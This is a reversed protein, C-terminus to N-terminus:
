KQFHVRGRRKWIRSVSSRSRRIADYIRWTMWRRASSASRCKSTIKWRRKRCRRAILLLEQSYAECIKQGGVTYVYLKTVDNPDWKIDVKDGIYHCLEDARYEYGFKKIGINRVLVREAKMMLITAYSKPPPAKVYRDANRFVELPTHWKDGQGKLGSHFSRHYEDRWECWLAYFEDLTLLEDRQLM